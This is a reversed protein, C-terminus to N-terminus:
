SIHKIELLIVDVVKHKHKESEDKAYEKADNENYAEVYECYEYGYGDRDDFQFKIKYVM